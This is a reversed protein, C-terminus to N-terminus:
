ALATQCDPCLGEVEVTQRSVSFGQKLAGALIAQGIAPDDLEAVRGCARCILFQAAHPGVPHACGVFANLREIRHILGQELLFDLARYVTPPAANQGEAKLADLVAYAGVPAHRDWVLELVRRRITTLRAGSRQCQEEAAALAARVCGDHDHSQHPFLEANRM